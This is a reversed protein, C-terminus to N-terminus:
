SGALTRPFSQNLEESLKEVMTVFEDSPAVNEDHVVSSRKECLENVDNTIKKRPEYESAVFRGVRM